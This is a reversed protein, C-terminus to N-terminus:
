IKRKLINNNNKECKNGYNKTKREHIFETREVDM